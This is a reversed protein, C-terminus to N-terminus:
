RIQTSRRGLQDAQIAYTSALGMLVLGAGSNLHSLTAPNGPKLGVSDEHPLRKSFPYMGNSYGTPHGNSLQRIVGRKKDAEPRRDYTYRLDR